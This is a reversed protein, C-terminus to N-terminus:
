NKTKWQLNEQLGKLATDPKLSVHELMSKGWLVLAIGIIFVGGAMIAYSAWLPLQPFAWVFLHAVSIGALVLGVLLIAAGAIIPAVALATRRIDNKVEVQFLSMQEVFLERADNAIGTVLGTLTSESETEVHTAM